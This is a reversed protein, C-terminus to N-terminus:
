QAMTKFHFIKQLLRYVGARALISATKQVFSIPYKKEKMLNYIEGYFLNNDRYTLVKIIYKNKYKRYEGLDFIEGFAEMEGLIDLTLLTRLCKDCKGCNKKKKGELLHSEEYMNTIQTAWCVDLYRRVLPNKSIYATKEVRTMEVNSLIVEMNNSSLLPVIAIEAHSVDETTFFVQNFLNSSAFVYHGFLKQLAMAASITRQVFSQLLTVEYDVYLNNLNTNIAVIPLGIEKAFPKLVEVNKKFAQEAAELKMDGFQGSNFLTLHTVRYGDTIDDKLHRLLSSFSDVGLSCGCGVGKANYNIDLADAEINIVKGNPIVSCLMAMLNNRLHFLLKSSVPAECRIDQRTSLALQIIVLLFSDCTDKCFYRGWKNEVSYWMVYEKGSLSDKIVSNLFTYEGKIETYPKGITIM